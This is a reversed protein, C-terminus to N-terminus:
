AGEMPSLSGWWKADQKLLDSIHWEGKYRYTYLVGPPCFVIESATGVRTDGVMIPVIATDRYGGVGIVMCPHGDGDLFKFGSDMKFWEPLGNTPIVRELLIQQDVLDDIGVKRANYEDLLILM